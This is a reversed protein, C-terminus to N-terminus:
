SSFSHTTIHLNRRPHFLVAHSHDSHNQWGMWSSRLLFQIGSELCQNMKRAFWWRLLLVWARCGCRLMLFQSHFVDRKVCKPVILLTVPVNRGRGWNAYSYQHWRMEWFSENLLHDLLAVYWSPSMETVFAVVAGWRWGCKIWKWDCLELLNEGETRLGCIPKVLRSTVTVFLKKVRRGRTGGRTSEFEWKFRQHPNHTVCHSTSLQFSRVTRGLYTGEM